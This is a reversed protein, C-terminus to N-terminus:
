EDLPKAAIRTYVQFGTFTEAKRSDGSATQYAKILAEPQLIRDRRGMVLVDPVPPFSTSEMQQPVEIRSVLEPHGLADVYWQVIDESYRPVMTWSHVDKENEILWQAVARMDEKRYAPSYYWQWDAWLSVGAVAALTARALHTHNARSVLDAVLAVFGILAPLTYRVNYSFGSVAAYVSVMSLDLFFLMAAPNALSRIKRGYELVILLLVGAAVAMELKHRSAAGLAGYTQIDTLSPGFSYGGIYTLLTYLVELGSSRRGYEAPPAHSTPWQALVAIVFIAVHILLM